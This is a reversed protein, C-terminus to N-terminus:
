KRVWVSCAACAAAPRSCSPTRGDGLGAPLPVRLRALVARRRHERRELAEGAVEVHQERAADCRHERHGAVLVPARQVLVVDDVEGLQELAGDLQQPLHVLERLAAVPELRAVVVHQDVLELVGAPQLPLEHRQQHLGPALAEAQHVLRRHQRRQEDDAIALLRDVPEAVGVHRQEVLRGRRDAAQPGSPPPRRAM